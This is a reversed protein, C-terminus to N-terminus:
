GELASVRAVLSNVATDLNAINEANTTIRGNATNIATDLRAIAEANATIRKNAASLGSSEADGFSLNGAGDTKLAQGDTGDESPLVWLTDSDLSDPAKFGVHNDGADDLLRLEDLFMVPARRNHHRWNEQWRELRRIRAGLEGILDIFEQQSM